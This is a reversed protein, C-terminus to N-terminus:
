KNHLLSHSHHDVYKNVFYSWFVDLALSFHYNEPLPDPRFVPLLHASHIISDVHIVALALQGPADYEPKVQWLGTVPDPSDSIHQFWNVLTCSYNNDEFSFSFSFFLLVHAIIMSRMGEGDHDLAVFVTDHWPYRDQGWRPHSRIRENQMGWLAKPFQPQHISAALSILDQPYLAIPEKFNSPKRVLKVSAASKLASSLGLEGDGDESDSDGTNRLQPSRGNHIMVELMGQKDFESSLKSLKNLRSITQLMQILANCRNSHRWPEKMAKIHKSETISSCLGNPSGYLHISNIYHVLSHQRPLSLDDRVSTEVFIQCHEHFHALADELEHLDDPTFSNRHAIYCFDLFAVLCQIMCDPVYGVLATLYVKMLAKSDDGTWVSVRHDIDEMIELSRKESHENVLYLLIWEVLHDKFVGKVVQHLLDPSLLKHIDTVVVNSQMGHDKWLTGPDFCTTLVSTDCHLCPSSEPCDLFNPHVDCKPCWNQVIRTLWVQEPYDAIYPGLGYFACCLHGDPCHVIEPTTMGPWLPSFVKVLCAHYLQRIFTKFLKTKHQWKSTKPIPLFAVPLVANGHTHHASNTFNGPSMYIPHYKQHGMAISVTTKDSGAIVLIFIAAQSGTLESMMNAQSWAWDGSMLNSQVQKGDAFQMYPTYYTTDKFTSESFQEHLLDHTIHHADCTCLQYTATMWSPVNADPKPGGYHIEYSKWPCSGHQISDITVYLDEANKWPPGYQGQVNSHLVQAAWNNLAENVESESSQLKTFHYNAFSFSVQDQFPGWSNPSEDDEDLAPPAYNPLDVGEANVPHGTFVKHCVYTYHTYDEENNVDPPLTPM